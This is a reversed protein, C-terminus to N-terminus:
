RCGIKVMKRDTEILSTLVVHDLFWFLEVVRLLHVSPQILLGMHPSYSPRSTSLTTPVAFQLLCKINTSLLQLTRYIICYKYLVVVSNRGFAIRPWVIENMIQLGHYEQYFIHSLFHICIVKRNCHLFNQLGSGYIPLFNGESKLIDSICSALIQIVHYLFCVNYPKKASLSQVLNARSFDAM